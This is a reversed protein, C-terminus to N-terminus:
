IAGKWIRFHALAPDQLMRRIHDKNASWEHFTINNDNMYKEVMVFPISAAHRMESSGTMGANSLAKAHEAIPTCDQTRSVTMTGDHLHMSTKLDLVDKPAIQTTIM